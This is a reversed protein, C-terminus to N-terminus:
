HHLRRVVRTTQKLNKWLLGFHPALLKNIAKFRVGCVVEIVPPNDFDPFHKTTDQM